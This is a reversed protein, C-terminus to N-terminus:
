VDSLYELPLSSAGIIGANKGIETPVVRMECFLM